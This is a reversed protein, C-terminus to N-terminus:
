DWLHIVDDDILTTDDIEPLFITVGSPLVPGEFALHPNAMLVQNVYFSLHSSSAAYLSVNIFDDAQLTSQELHSAPSHSWSNPLRQQNIYYNWCIWDVMDGDSSRYHKGM